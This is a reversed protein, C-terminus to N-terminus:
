TRCHIIDNCAYSVWPNYLYADLNGSLLIQTIEGCYVAGGGFPGQQYQIVDGIQFSSGQTGMTWNLGTECDEIVYLPFTPIPVRCQKPSFCTAIDVTQTVSGTNVVITGTIACFAGTTGSSLSWNYTTVSGQSEFDYTGSAQGLGVNEITHCHQTPQPTIGQCDDCDTYELSNLNDYSGTQTMEKIIEVCVGANPGDQIKYVGGVNLATSSNFNRPPFSVTDCAFAYYTFGAACSTCNDYVESYDTNPPESFDQAIVTYCPSYQDFPGTTDKVVDGPQLNSFPTTLSIWRTSNDLPNQQVPQLCSQVKWSTPTQQGSDCAECSVNLADITFLAALTSTSEIYYCGARENLTVVQNIPLTTTSTAIYTAASVQSCSELFERLQYTILETDCELDVVYSDSQCGNSDTLVYSYQGPCMLTRSLNPAYSDSWEITYPGVGGAGTVTISGNCPSTCDTPNVDVSTATVQTATSAPVDVQITATRGLSDTVTLTDIGVPADITFTFPATGTPNNNGQAGSNALEWTFAPSGNTTIQINGQEGICNTNSVAVSFGTLPEDLWLPRQDNLSILQCVVETEAGVQADIIKEPRYYKGNVFIVDDFTLYQLDVNDLVFKATLRRSFKDYLSSVYRAWYDDFLTQGQDFYGPQIVQPPVQNDYNNPDPDIYYRTDNAFNLNLGVNEQPWNQYPSVLPWYAQQNKNTGDVWFWWKDAAVTIDQLGNYFLLRTKPKIPERKFVGADTTNEFISPLIWQPFPHPTNLEHHIQDIPTPAIGKVKVDRKGKLLENQSNFRLWGYAHKNNDQHFKNIFDEDEALTYEIQASQTYFLPELVMDKDEVLKDSWDYTTGSGIFQQWPEIIFHNPRSPDPQMVLRFMTIIDKIYDIQLYECDLDRPIYYEGPASNCHWYVTGVQSIDYGGLSQIDVRLTDGAEIQPGGNRSDYSFSTWLNDTAPNGEALVIPVTPAAVRYLLLRVRSDIPEYGDPFAPNNPEQARASVRAGAEFTYYAGSPDADGQAIYNSGGLNSPNGDPVNINFDPSYIVQNNCYLLRDMGNDGNNGSGFYEFIGSTVQDQDVGVRESNGFASAYQQKFLDSDLFNSEYTYGADEFIQDWLRKARIMPKFRSAFIANGQSTFSNDNGGSGVTITGFDTAIEGDTDYQNGHDILPFLIDGDAYALNQNAMPLQPYANWSQTVNTYTPSGEFDAANTYNVSPLGPWSFDTMTMSCMTREGIASSFDRTEGLFLLEYDVRDLDHNRYIKQLRIHGARFQAGDVLIEAQNKVTVDFDIGDVAYSNEFFENNDRTAPVRFTKSFVSTADANTIDEISLTLKIPETEYLDLFLSGTEDIIQTGDPNTTYATGQKYVKLQIM